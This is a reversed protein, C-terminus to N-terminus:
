PRKTIVVQSGRELQQRDLTVLETELHAALAVYAADCGRIRQAIALAAVQQGLEVTFPYLQVVIEQSLLSIAQQALDPNQLGRSLAAGVEALIVAPAVVQQGTHLCENLWHRCPAHATEHQNVIAVIVSADVVPM